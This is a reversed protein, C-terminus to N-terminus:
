FDVRVVDREAELFLDVMSLNFREGGMSSALRKATWQAHVVLSDSSPRSRPQTGTMRLEWGEM